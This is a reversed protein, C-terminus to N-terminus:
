SAGGASTGRLIQARRFLNEASTNVGRGRVRGLGVVVAGFPYRPNRCAQDVAARM